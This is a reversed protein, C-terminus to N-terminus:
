WQGWRIRSADCPETTGIKDDLQELQEIFETVSDVHEDFVTEEAELATSDEAAIFNLVEVHREEFERDHEKAMEKLCRIKRGPTNIRRKGVIQQYGQGDSDPSSAGPRPM